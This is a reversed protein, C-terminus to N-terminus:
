NYQQSRDFCVQSIVTMCFLLSYCNKVYCAFDNITCLKCCAVHIMEPQPKLKLNWGLQNQSNQPPWIISEFVDVQIENSVPFTNGGLLKENKTLVPCTM